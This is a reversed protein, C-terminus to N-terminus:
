SQSLTVLYAGLSAIVGGIVAGAARGYNGQRAYNGAGVFCSIAFLGASGKIVWEATNMGKLVQDHFMTNAGPDVLKFPDTAWLTSSYFMLSTQLLLRDIKKM